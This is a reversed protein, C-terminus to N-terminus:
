LFLGALASVLIGLNYDPVRSEERVFLNLALEGRSGILGVLGTIDRVVFFCIDIEGIVM